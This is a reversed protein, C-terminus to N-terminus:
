QNKNRSSIIRNRWGDIFSENKIPTLIVAGLSKGAKKKNFFFNKANKLYELIMMYLKEPECLIGVLV